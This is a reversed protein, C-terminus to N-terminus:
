VKLNRLERVARPSLQQGDQSLTELLETPNGVWAVSLRGKQTPSKKKPAPQDRKKTM